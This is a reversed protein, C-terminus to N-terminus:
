FGPENTTEAENHRRRPSSTRGALIIGFAEEFTKGSKFAELLTALESSSLPGVRTLVLDRYSDWRLQWALPDEPEPGSDIQASAKQTPTLPIRSYDTEESM